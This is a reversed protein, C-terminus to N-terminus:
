INHYQPNPSDCDFCVGTGLIVSTNGSMFTFQAYLIKSKIALSATKSLGYLLTSIALSNAFVISKKRFLVQESSHSTSVSFDVTLSM